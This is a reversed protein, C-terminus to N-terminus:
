ENSVEVITQKPGDVMRLWREPKGRFERREYVIEYQGAETNEFQFVRKPNEPDVRCHKLEVQPARYRFAGFVLIKRESHNVGVMLDDDLPTKLGGICDSLSLAVTMQKTDHDRTVTARPSIFVFEKKPPPEPPGFNVERRAMLGRAEEPIYIIKYANPEPPGFEFSKAVDARRLKVTPDASPEFTYFGSITITSAAHDVNVVPGLGALSYGEPIRKGPRLDVILDRADATRAIFPKVPIQIREADPATEARSEVEFCAVLAVLASLLIVNLPIWRMM